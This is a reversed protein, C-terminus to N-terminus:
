AYTTIEFSKLEFRYGFRYKCHLVHPEYNIITNTYLYIMMDVNEGNTIINM